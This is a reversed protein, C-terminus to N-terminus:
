SKHTDFIGGPLHGLEDGDFPRKREEHWPGVAGPRGSLAHGVGAAVIKHCYAALEKRNKFDTMQVPPHYHVDVDFPGLRFSEWLHPILEMDGYWAFFPRFQRGMPIGHVRTYAISVPQVTVQPLDDGEPGKAPEAAGMLASKFPLVGIGASSTGEPFLVLTQGRKLRKQILQRNAGTKSRKSRDVFVTDQLRAMMGFLPWDAVEKKAIFSVKGRSSLIPIDFYSSHYATVLVARDTVQEGHTHM